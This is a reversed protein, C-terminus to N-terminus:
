TVAVAPFSAAGRTAYHEFAERQFPDIRYRIFCTIAM